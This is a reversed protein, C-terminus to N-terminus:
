PARPTIPGPSGAPRDSGTESKPESADSGECGGLAPKDGRAVLIDVAVLFDANVLEFLARPSAENTAEERVLKPFFSLAGRQEGGSMATNDPERDSVGKARLAM